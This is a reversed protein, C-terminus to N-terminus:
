LPRGIIRRNGADIRRHFQEVNGDSLPIIERTFDGAGGRAIRVCGGGGGLCFNEGRLFRDFGAPPVPTGAVSDSAMVDREAGGEGGPLRFHFREVGITAVALSASLFFTSLVM